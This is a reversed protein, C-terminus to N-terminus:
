VDQPPVMQMGSHGHRAPDRSSEAQDPGSLRRDLRRQCNECQPKSHKGGTWAAYIEDHCDSCEQSGLHRPERAAAEAIAGARFHGLKGFDKPVAKWRAGAFAAIAVAIVGLLRVYHTMRGM